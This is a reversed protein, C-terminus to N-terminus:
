VRFNAVIPNHDSLKNQIVSDLVTINELSDYLKSTCFMHDLEWMYSSRVHKHTRQPESYYKRVCNKFGMALIFDFLLNNIREGNKMFKTSTPNNDMRRECNFDGAIIINKANYENKLFTITIAIQGAFITFWKNLKTESNPFKHWDLNGYVSLLFIENKNKTTTKVCIFDNNFEKPFSIRESENKPSYIFNNVKNKVKLKHTFDNILRNNTTINLNYAEQILAIDPSLGTLFTWNSKKNKMNWSIVRM